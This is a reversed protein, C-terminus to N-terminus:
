RQRCVEENALTHCIFFAADGGKEQIRLTTKLGSQENSEFLSGKGRGECVISGGDAGYWQGACRYRVSGKFRGMM